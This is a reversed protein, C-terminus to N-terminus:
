FQPRALHGTLLASAVCACPQTCDGSCMNSLFFSLTNACVNLELVLSASVLVVGDGVCIYMCSRAHACVCVCVHSPVCTCACM